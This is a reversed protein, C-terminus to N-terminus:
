SMYVCCHTHTHTQARTHKHAVQLLGVAYYCGSQIGSSICSTAQPFVFLFRLKFNLNLFAKMNFEYNKKKERLRAVARSVVM